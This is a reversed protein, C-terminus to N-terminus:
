QFLIKNMVSILLQYSWRFHYQHFHMFSCSPGILFISNMLNLSCLCWKPHWSEPILDSYFFIPNNSFLIRLSCSLQIHCIFISIQWLEGKRQLKKLCDMTFVHLNSNNPLLFIFIPSILSLFTPYYRSPCGTFVLLWRCKIKMQRFVWVGWISTLNLFVAYVHYLSYVSM